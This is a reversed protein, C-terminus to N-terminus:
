NTQRGLMSEYLQEVKRMEKYYDQRTEITIRAERGISKRMGDNSILYLIKESLARSDGKPIVFGNRGDEIWYRADGVDTSIVPTGNAMAEATSASIGSDSISTSVYVDSSALYSPLDDASINGIFKVSDAVGFSKVMDEYIKRREGERAMLFVTDPAKEIVPPMAKMFCDPDYVPNFGRINIVIKGIPNKKYKSFFGETRKEPNNKKTDVGFYIKRVKEEGGMLESLAKTTNEGDCTVVDASRLAKRVQHSKMFSSHADILVDTGWATMVLPHFGSSAALYGYHTIYHAHVVDPKIERIIKRVRSPARLKDIGKRPIIHMKIGIEEYNATTTLGAEESPLELSILHVEHKPVFFKAWKFTHISQFDALFCIRM